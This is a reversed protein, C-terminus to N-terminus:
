QLLSEVDKSVHAIRDEPFRSKTVSVAEKIESRQAATLQFSGAQQKISYLTNGLSVLARYATEGDSKEEKLVLSILKLHWEHTRASIAGKLRVCSLNFLLTALTVHHLKNLAEYPAKSIEELLEAVWDLSEPSTSEQLMNAFSRLTLLVNTERPKPIPTEWQHSWDAAELLARFFITARSPDEYFHPCFGSILRALDIVPFRSSSPWRQLIQIVAELHSDSLPAGEPAVGSQTAQTLYTLTEDLSTTEDPYLALSSTSIEHQFGEDFQMIKGRMAPVNAQKFSVFTRVPIITPTHVGPSPQTTPQSVNATSPTYRSGGTFPDGSSISAGGTPQSTPGARYRSGGTFPDSPGDPAGITVGQTNSQIFQVIQDVYGGPLDNAQLFRQAAFYPNESTNFPLKLPPVGDKIDVDFVYDYERGEYVQRRGSGVADVVDGIKQWSSSASDWQHAEVNDNVRIMKVDGSKKGPISLAEPGPLDSKKVDGVQQSPLAQRAVTEDFEKLEDAPAWREEAASFVRVVGDSAGSVIDGNPMSAVSWVSIAPHVITQVCEGDHWVRVTRDEGASAIDGNPLVTLSYVFSTHGSLTYVVDGETTWVRVESDNSCSAFGIDPILALGRVVGTHGTVTRICKHKNWIKITKDASGTLFTEDDVALVAWVNHEHGKLEYALQFNVWVKATRDWSGSVILGSPLANLACVNDGHGILSYSPETATSSLDFVNIVTDGGGTVVYGKSAEPTPPIYALANVFKAGAEFVAERAFSVTPAPRAWSVATKDRSVSLVLSDTPAAVGRVDSSHSRLLAALKYPM